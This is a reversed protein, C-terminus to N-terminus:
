IQRKDPQKFPKGDSFLMFYVGENLHSEACISPSIFARGAARLRRDNSVGDCVPSSTNLATLLLSCMIFLRCMCPDCSSPLMDDSASCSKPRLHRNKFESSIVLVVDRTLRQLHSTEFNSNTQDHYVTVKEQQYQHDDDFVDDTEDYFFDYDDDNSGMSTLGFTPFQQQPSISSDPQPNSSLAKLHFFYTSTTNSNSGALNHTIPNIDM